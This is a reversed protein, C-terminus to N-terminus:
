GKKKALWNRVEGKFWELAEEGTVLAGADADFKAPKMVAVWGQGYPDKRITRPSKRAQLNVEVIEGTIPSEVPGVWKASEITGIPKGQEVPSGVPRFRVIIIDGAMDAGLSTLGIRAKGDELRAWTHGHRWYFSDRM